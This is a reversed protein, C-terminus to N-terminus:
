RNEYRKRETKTPKRVSFIKISFEEFTHCVVLLRGSESYGITVYRHEDFSHGEDIVTVTLDDDFVTRAEDFSVKHKLVNSKAKNDDWEFKM